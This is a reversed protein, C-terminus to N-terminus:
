NLNLDSIFRKYAESIILHGRPFIEPNYIGFLARDCCKAISKRLRDSKETESLGKPLHSRFYKEELKTNPAKLLIYSQCAWGLGALSLYPKSGDWIAYRHNWMNSTMRFIEEFLESDSRDTLCRKILALAPEIFQEPSHNLIEPEVMSLTWNICLAPYAKALPDLVRRTILINREEYLSIM